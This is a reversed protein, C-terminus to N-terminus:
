NRGRELFALLDRLEGITMTHVLGGPMLSTTLDTRSEIEIWPFSQERGVSDRYYERSTRGGKRLMIGTFTKGSSLTITQAHFQPDVDRNPELIARLIRRRDGSSAVATLDPGVVNGRGRHRHCNACLAVKSHYFIRRGM